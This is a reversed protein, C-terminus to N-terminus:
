LSAEGAELKECAEMWATEAQDLEAAYRGSDRTLASLEDGGASQYLEPDALREDIERKRTRLKEMLREMDKIQKRLPKLQARADAASKRKTAKDERTPPVGLVDPAVAGVAVDDALVKRAQRLWSAYDDLDGEYPRVIGRDVLLLDDAVLRLLHRDHSVLVVAGEYEQLAITLAHRMDLDLHNTPEDLLLIHPSRWATLALTLRAKEGGSLTRVPREAREGSFGFGGLFDRLRQPRVNEDRTAATMTELPSLGM